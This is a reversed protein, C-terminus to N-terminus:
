PKINNSCTKDKIKNPVDVIATINDRKPDIGKLSVLLDISQDFKKKEIKRLEALAQKLEM